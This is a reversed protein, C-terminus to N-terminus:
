KVFLEKAVRAYRKWLPGSHAKKEILIDVAKLRTIESPHALPLQIKSRKVGLTKIRRKTHTADDGVGINKILNKTPLIALGNNYWCSFTWLYAWSDLKKKYCKNLITRWYGCFEKEIYLELSSKKETDRWDNMDNDFYKWARRWTAWGWCNMYRSFYYSYPWDEPVVGFNSGSIVFVEETYRYRELLDEVYYFFSQDPVCDDELVIGETVHDFFWTIGEAMAHRCGLNNAQINKKVTCEWDISEIIKRANSCAEIDEKSNKPGDASIFLNLPKLDRLINVVKEVSEARNYM